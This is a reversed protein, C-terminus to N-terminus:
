LEYGTDHENTQEFELISSFDKRHVPQNQLTLNREFIDKLMSYDGYRSEISADTWERTSVNKFSLDFGAQESMQTLLVRGVRGNGERFPHGYNYARYYKAMFEAANEKSIGSRMEINASLQKSLNNFWNELKDCTVFSVNQKYLNVKRFQGAWDYMDQFLHKHIAKIHKTDFNGTVFGVDTLNLASLDREMARARDFDKINFKNILTAENPPPYTYKKKFM